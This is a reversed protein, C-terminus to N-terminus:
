EEETMLFNLLAVVVVSSIGAVLVSFIGIQRLAIWISLFVFLGAIAVFISWKRLSIKTRSAHKEYQEGFGGFIVGLVGFVIAPLLLVLM